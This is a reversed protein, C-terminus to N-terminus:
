CMENDSQVQTDIRRAMEIATQISATLREEEDGKPNNTLHAAYIRSAAHLVATESPKLKLFTNDDTMVPM